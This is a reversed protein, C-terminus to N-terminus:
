DDTKLKNKFILFDVKSIGRVHADLLPRVSPLICLIGEIYYLSERTDFCLAGASDVFVHSLLERKRQWWM